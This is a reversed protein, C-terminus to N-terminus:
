TSDDSKREKELRNLYKLGEEYAASWYVRVDTRPQDGFWGEGTPKRQVTKVYGSHKAALAEACEKQLEPTRYTSMGGPQQSYEQNYVFETIMASPYGHRLLQLTMDFDEFLAIRDFRAGVKMVVSADYGTAGSIRKFFDIYPPLRHAQQRRAIGLHAYNELEKHATTLMRIIDEKTSRSFKGPNDKRRTSFKFDDDIMLFRPDTSGHEEWHHELIFQRVEAIGFEDPVTIIPLDNAAYEEAESEPVVVHIRSRVRRPFEGYTVVNNARGRSPIYIRM